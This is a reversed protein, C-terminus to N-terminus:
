ISREEIEKLTLNRYNNDRFKKLNKNYQNPKNGKIIEYNWLTTIIKKHFVVVELGRLESTYKKYITNSLCRDTLTYVQAGYRIKKSGYGVAILIYDLKIARQQMRTTPHKRCLILENKIYKLKEDKDVLIPLEKSAKM